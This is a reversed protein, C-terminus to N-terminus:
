FSKLLDELSVGLANCIKLCTLITPMRKGAEIMGIARDSMGIRAALKAQSLGQELRLEKFRKVLKKVIQEPGKNEM